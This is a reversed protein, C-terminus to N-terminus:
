KTWFSRKNTPLSLPKNWILLEFFRSALEELNLRDWYKEVLELKIKQNQGPGYNIMRELMFIRGEETKQLEKEDYDWLSQM